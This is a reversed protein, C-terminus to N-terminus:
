KGIITSGHSGIFSLYAGMATQRHSRGVPLEEGTTLVVTQSNFRRIYRCNALYGKHIRLFGFPELEEELTEMRSYIRYEEPKGDMHFVQVNKNSEIYRVKSADLTVTGQQTKFHVRDQLEDEQLMAAFRTVVETIDDLFHNKRVFGFPQVAFTDYVRDLRSSVFVVKATVGLETLAQGAQIGDMGPMSIDLFILDFRGTKSREMLDGASRFSETWPEIGMERFLSEVSASIISVARSEDDCVAVRVKSRM